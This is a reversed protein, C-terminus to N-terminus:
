PLPRGTAALLGYWESRALKVDAATAADRIREINQTGIIPIPRSPHHLIWALAIATTSVEHVAAVASLAVGLPSETDAIAGRGLPSWALPTAKHQIALDLVGDDITEYHWLSLEPQTTAILGPSSQVIAAFQSATYNSVGVARARGSEVIEALTAAVEAPHAMLDPRHIQYLDITDIGLRSLSADCADLLYNRSSDYPVGPQIGGKTAIVMEARLSPAGRLVKGLLTESAGFGGTPDGYGYIDATDILTMGYSLAADIKATAPALDTGAFRWCGFSINGVRLDTNGLQRLANRSTM